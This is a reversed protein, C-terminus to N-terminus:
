RGDRPQWQNAREGRAARDATETIRNTRTIATKAQMIWELIGRRTSPPFGDWHGRAPAREALAVALDDPMVLNEIDDLKSWSGNAKAIEVMRRGAPLLRGQQELLEIRAKNPRAWKSTPNRRTFWLMSREDDITRKHSDVWGVALAEIVSEEYTMRTRGTTTKWSILWVGDAAQHNALLWERWAPVTEAHVKERDLHAVVPQEKSANTDDPNAAPSELSM